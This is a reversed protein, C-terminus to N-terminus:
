NYAKIADCKTREGGPSAAEVRCAALVHEVRYVTVAANTAAPPSELTDTATVRPVWATPIRGLASANRSAM